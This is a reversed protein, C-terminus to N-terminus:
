PSLPSKSTKKGRVAVPVLAASYLAGRKTGIPLYGDGPKIISVGGKVPTFKDDTWVALDRNKEKLWDGFSATDRQVLAATYAKNIAMKSFLPLAGDMRAFYILDGRDDVVAIVM